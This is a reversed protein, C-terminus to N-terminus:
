VEGTTRAGVRTALQRDKAFSAVMEAGCRAYEDQTCRQVDASSDLSECKTSTFVKM